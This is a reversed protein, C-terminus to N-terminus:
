DHEKEVAFSSPPDGSQHRQWMIAYARELNRTFRVTDFLASSMRNRALLMDKASSLEAADGALKLAVLEYADLSETILADLGVASL